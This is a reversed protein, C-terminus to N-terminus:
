NILKQSRGLRSGGSWRRMAMTASIARLSSRSPPLISPYSFKRMASVTGGHHGAVIKFPPRSKAKRASDEPEFYEVTNWLRINDQSASFPM